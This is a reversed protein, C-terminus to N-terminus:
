KPEELRRRRTIFQTKSLGVSRAGAATGLPIAKRIEDDTVTVPRGPVRGKLAAKAM